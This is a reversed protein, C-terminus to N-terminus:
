MEEKRKNVGLDMTTASSVYPGDADLPHFNQTLLPQSLEKNLDCVKQTENDRQQQKVEENREDKAEESRGPAEAMLEDCVHQARNMVAPQREDVVNWAQEDNHDNTEKCKLCYLKGPKPITIAKGYRGPDSEAANLPTEMKRPTSKDSPDLVAIALM